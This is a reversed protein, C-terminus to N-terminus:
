FVLIIVLFIQDLQLNMLIIVKPIIYKTHQRIILWIELIVIIASMYIGSRMNTENLYGKVYKSSRRIGFLDLFWNGIKKLVELM